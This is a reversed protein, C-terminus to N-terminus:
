TIKMRAFKGKLCLENFDLAEYFNGVVYITGPLFLSFTFDFYIIFIM